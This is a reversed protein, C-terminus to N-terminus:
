TQQLLCKGGSPLLFVDSRVESKVRVLAAAQDPQRLGHTERDSVICVNCEQIQLTRVVLYISM